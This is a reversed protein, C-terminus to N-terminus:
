AVPRVAELAAWDGESWRRAVALGRSEFAAVVEAERNIFIGSALLTGGPRLDALLGDALLVLLSAVLNALVVDFPGEGTPASGERARVVRGLRNRRANAASAEVAIPDIDVALISKAGLMGAAISLIGSGSGIDAIRAGAILGRDALSELSALCLRTTPHLGTGFAMGPDLALVVDGPLRRHRRWTPRIVIRQGVRLVPFHAKWANAWDTERVLRTSLDGIPRLGFAQLHGLERDAQAVADRVAAPSLVPLYARVLAPRAIDIRAALGDEVLEFAPEVSTGGPAARSLIESVAEVAEHDAAVSLELWADKATAADNLDIGALPDHADTTDAADADVEARTDADAEADADTANADSDEAEGETADARAEADEADAETADPEIAGGDAEFGDAPPGSSM